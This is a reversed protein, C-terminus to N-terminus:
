CPCVQWISFLLFQLSAKSNREKFAGSKTGSAFVISVVTAAVFLVAAFAVAVFTALAMAGIIPLALMFTGGM